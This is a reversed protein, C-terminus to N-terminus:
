IAMKGQAIVSGASVSVIQWDLLTSKNVEFTNGDELEFGGSANSKLDITDGPRILLDNMNGKKVLISNGENDHLTDRTIGIRDDDQDLIIRIDRLSFADGSMHDFSFIYQGKAQDSTNNRVTATIEVQPPKERPASLGGAFASIVAAIIITVVLMLMVGVVASVANENTREELERLM